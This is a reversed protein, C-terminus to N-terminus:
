NEAHLSRTGASHKNPVYVEAMLADYQDWVHRRCSPCLELVANQPSATVVTAGCEPCTIQFKIM